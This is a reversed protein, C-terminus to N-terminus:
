GEGARDIRKSALNARCSRSREVVVTRRFDLLAARDFVQAATRAVAPFDDWIGHAGSVDLDDDGVIVDPQDAVVETLPRRQVGDLDGFLEDGAPQDLIAGTQAIM